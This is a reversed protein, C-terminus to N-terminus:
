IAEEGAAEPFFLTFLYESGSGNPVVRSFAGRRPDDASVIDVTGHERGVRVDIRAEGDGTDIRWYAGEAEIGRAFGPAWAPLRRADGVVDLVTEPAADIAISRTESRNMQM